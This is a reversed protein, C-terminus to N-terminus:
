EQWNLLEKNQSILKPQKSNINGGNMVIEYKDLYNLAMQKSNFKEVVYENCKTKSYCSSNSIAESLEQRKDTLFGYEQLVIEPLSGYPTGFVPCGYYLSEIIALGFPENWIIPFILGKSKNILNSKQQDNVMGEFKVRRSLTFTNPHFRNGGLIRLKENDTSLITGIAGKVNKVNWAAKGLFHFYERTSNLNPKSYSNWDLGNYVFNESSYRDAHNKSIFISNIDLVKDYSPNGHITVIYPKTIKQTFNDDNIHVVDIYSPIQSDIPKDLDLPIINAFDCYSGKPALLTVTHGLQKLEKALYWVVRETGGYHISPIKNPISILINM